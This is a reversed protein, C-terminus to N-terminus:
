LGKLNSSDPLFKGTLNWEERKEEWLFQLNLPIDCRTRDLIQLYIRYINDLEDSDVELEIYNILRNYNKLIDQTLYLDYEKNLVSIAEKPTSAVIEQTLSNKVGNTHNFTFGANSFMALMLQTRHLGKVNNPYEESYYSFELWEKNGIMWDIQVNIDLQKGDKDYQPFLTFMNGTTIKKEDCVILNSNNNIYLCIEKLFAKLMLQSDTATRARKKLKQYTETVTNVDLNWYKFTEETFYSDDIALDIDGSIDKKGASGVISINDISIEQKPFLRKLEKKYNSLTPTVYERKITETKGKFVNGGM